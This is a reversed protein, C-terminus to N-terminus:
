ASTVQKPLQQELALMEARLPHDPFAAALKRLLVLAEAPQSLHLGLQQAALLGYRPTDPSRPWQALYGQCLKVALRSM